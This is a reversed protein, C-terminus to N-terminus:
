APRRRIPQGILREFEAEPTGYCAGAFRELTTRDRVIIRGRRNVIARAGELVHMDTTVGARRVGLMLSLFAHTLDLQDSEVRDHCMLIWRALRAILPFRANALATFAVQISFAEAGRALNRDFAPVADRLSLLQETPIRWAPGPMQVFCEFPSQDSGHSASPIAIGDRGIIGVEVEEEGSSAVLSVVATEPFYVFPFPQGPRALQERLTLEVLELHPAVAEFAEPPLTSLLLNRVASQEFSM